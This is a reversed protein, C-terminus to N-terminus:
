PLCLLIQDDHLDHLAAEECLLVYPHHFTVSGSVQSFLHSPDWFFIVWSNWLRSQGYLVTVISTESSTRSYSYTSSSSLATLCIGNAM